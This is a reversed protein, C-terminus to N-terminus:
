FESQQLKNGNFFQTLFCVPSVETHAVNVSFNANKINIGVDAPGQCESLLTVTDGPSTPLLHLLPVVTRDVRYLFKLCGLYMYNSTKPVQFSNKLHTNSTSSGYAHLNYPM